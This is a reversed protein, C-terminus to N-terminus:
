CEQPLVANLLTVIQCNDRPCGTLEPQVLMQSKYWKTRQDTSPIGLELRHVDCELGKLRSGPVDQTRGWGACEMGTCGIEQGSRHRYTTFNATREFLRRLRM